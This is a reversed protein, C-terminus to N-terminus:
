NEQTSKSNKRTFEPKFYWSFIGSWCAMNNSVSSTHSGGFGERVLFELPHYLLAAFVYRLVVHIKVGCKYVTVASHLGYSLGRLLYRSYWGIVVTCFMYGIVSMAFDM